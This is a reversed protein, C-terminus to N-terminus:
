CLRYMRSGASPEMIIAIIMGVFKPLVVIRELVHEAAKWLGRPLDWYPRPEGDSIFLAEGAVQPYKLHEPFLRDAALIHVQVANGIYTWDFLNSNDGIQMGTKKTVMVNM